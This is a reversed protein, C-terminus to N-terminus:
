AMGEPRVDAIFMELVRERMGAMALLLVANRDELPLMAFVTELYDTFSNWEQEMIEEANPHERLPIDLVAFKERIIDAQVRGINTAYKEIFEPFSSISEIDIGYISKFEAAASKNVFRTAEFEHMAEGNMNESM